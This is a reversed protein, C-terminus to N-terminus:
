QRGFRPAEKALFARLGEQADASSFARDSLDLVVPIAEETSRDYALDIAQKCLAIAHRSRGDLRAVLEMAGALAGGPPAVRNVLGWGLGTAADIPDAILMFERARGEGIRRTVRVTGGSGPILGLKVEPLCLRAGADAVILDCCCALELGGGFALGNVAAITPLPFGAVKGFATNEPGLKGPVVKGPAMLPPFESVDSGCCFAKEGAGTVVLARLAGARALELARDLVADLRRTLALTVLNLPPNNLTLVCVGDQVEMRVLGESM